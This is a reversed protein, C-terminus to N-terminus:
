NQEESDSGDPSWAPVDGDYFEEDVPLSESLEPEAPERDLSERLLKLRMAEETGLVAEVAGFDIRGDYFADKMQRRFEEDDTVNGLREQLADILLRTRSIDLVEAVQDAREVLSRPANFDVRIKEEAM